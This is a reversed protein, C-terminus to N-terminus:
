KIELQEPLLRQGKSTNIMARRVEKIIREKDQQAVQSLLIQEAATEFNSYAMKILNSKVKDPLADWTPAAVMEDVTAKANIGRFATVWNQEEPTMEPRYSDGADNLTFKSPVMPLEVGLRVMEQLARDNSAPVSVLPNTKVMIEGTVADIRPLMKETEWPLRSRLPDIIHDGTRRLLPDYEKTVFGFLPSAPLLGAIYNGVGRSMAGETKATLTSVINTLTRFWSKNLELEYLSNVLGWYAQTHQEDLLSDEETGITNNILRDKQYRQWTQHLNAGFTLIDSAIGIEAHQHWEGDTGLFSKEPHLKLWAAKQAPDTPASGTILGKEYLQWAENLLATGVLMKAVAANRVAPTGQIDRYFRPSVMALPSHEVLQKGLNIGIKVFPLNM